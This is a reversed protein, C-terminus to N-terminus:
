ITINVKMGYSKNTKCIISDEPKSPPPVNGPNHWFLFSASPYFLRTKVMGNQRRLDALLRHSKYAETVTQIICMYRNDSTQHKRPSLGMEFKLDIHLACACIIETLRWYQRNSKAGFYLVNKWRAV